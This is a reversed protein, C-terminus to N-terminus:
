ELYNMEIFTGKQCTAVRSEENEKEVRKEGGGAGIKVRELVHM